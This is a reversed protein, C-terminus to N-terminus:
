SLFEDLSIGSPSRIGSPFSESSVMNPQQVRRLGERKIAKFKVLSSLEHVACPDIYLSRGSTGSM